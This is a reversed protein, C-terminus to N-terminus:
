VTRPLVERCSECALGRGGVDGDSDRCRFIKISFLGTTTITVKTDLNDQSCIICEVSFIGKYNGHSNSNRSSQPGQYFKEFELLKSFTYKVM